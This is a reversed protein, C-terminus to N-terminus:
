KWFKWWPASRNEGEQALKDAPYDQQTLGRLKHRILVAENSAAMLCTVTPLLADPFYRAATPVPRVRALWAVWLAYGAFSVFVVFSGVFLFAIWVM